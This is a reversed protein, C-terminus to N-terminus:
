KTVVLEVFGQKISQGNGLDIKYFYTGAPALNQGSNLSRGDWVIDENNYGSVNFVIGGWRDFITVHNNPYNDINEIFWVDNINDNNPTFAKYFTLRLDPSVEITVEIDICAQITANDCVTVTFSDTGSYEKESTYYLCLNNLSGDYTIAGNVNTERISTILLDDDDPDTLQLCVETEEGSYATTKVTTEGRPLQNGEIEIDTSCISSNGYSDTATIVIQSLGPPFSDGSTKNSTITVLGCNDTATPTTWTVQASQTYPNFESIVPNITCSEFVPSITDKVIINFNCASSNGFIDKATYVVNTTGIEFVDGPKNTSELSELTCNDTATPETWSAAKSCESDVYVTIDEPCNSFTPATDDTVTIDFSCTASNGAEDTATYTVITTGLDFTDGPLHTSTVNSLTCNDTATPETWSVAASCGSDDSSASFNSLCNSFVPATQDTVTIDFSCTATNGAQDTTTYTVTTTGLDFIDGPLHTSTLSSITCNDTATPATWSVTASCGSDGTGVAINGPCNVISPPIDDTVTVDFSCTATNGAIDTATYTVTTTGFGFSDGPLLTSAFSSVTCNDSASPAAWSVAKTCESAGLSVTINDPCNSITPSIGDTVTVDFSCTAVNGAQDTATYTVTTTGSGFTDGPLYNSTLGNITCNDSATPETWFVTKSCESSGLTVSIDTPCNQFAPPVDDTITVDFSCTSINGAEDTATYTVTTTGLNFLAGPSHTSTFSVLNTEDTATPETWSVNESCSSVSTSSSINAPCNSIVPPTTDVLSSSCFSGPGTCGGAINVTGTGSISSFDGASISGNITLDGDVNITTNDGATLDGEILISGQIDISSGNMLIVSGHVILSGSVNLILNNQVDLDGWIELDGDVNITTSNSTTLNHPNLSAGIILFGGSNITLTNGNKMDVDSTTFSEGNQIVVEGINNNMSVDESINDAINGSSWIGPDSWNGSSTLTTAAAWAVLPVLIFLFVAKRKLINRIGPM